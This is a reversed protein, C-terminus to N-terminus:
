SYAERHLTLQNKGSRAQVLGEDKRFLLEGDALRLLSLVGLPTELVLHSRITVCLGEPILASSAEMRHRLVLGLFSFIDFVKVLGPWLAYDAAEVSRWGMGEEAEIFPLEAIMSGFLFLGTERSGEIKKISLLGDALLYYVRTIKPYSTLFTNGYFDVGAEWMEGHEDKGYTFRFPWGTGLLYPFYRSFDSGAIANGATNGLHLVGKAVFREQGSISVMINTFEFALSPAGVVPSMQLQFHLHPWPSRGSNGCLALQDGRSVTEGPKFLISGPQLHALCSYYNQAHEIIICNGWNERSNTRGIENDPVGDIVTYVTGPAPALVPLGYAYYDATTAGNNAFCKGNPGIAQFDYAFRWDGQHTIGGDIGQSVIWKGRFPLSLTVGWRKWVRLEERSRNLNEEPSGPSMPALVLKLSPHLRLKLTYLTLWVALNFPFALPSMVAPFLTKTGVLFLLSGSAAVMAMLLSGPGPLTFIGGIALATFMQNFTLANGDIIRPDIGFVTELFATTIFGVALLVLAMRSWVLLGMVLVLGTLPDLQFLIAGLASCFSELWPPLLGSPLTVLHFHVGHPTILSFGSSASMVLWSVLNFPMSMAPLGCYQYLLNNLFVTVFTLLVSATVLMVLMAPSPLFFFGIGLGTLIGNLGYVGKRISDRDMGVLWATLSSLGGGLLGFLAHRPATMTATLVFAGLLRNEAFFIRSYSLLLTDGVFKLQEVM